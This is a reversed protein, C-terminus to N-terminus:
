SIIKLYKRAHQMDYTIIGDKMDFSAEVLSPHDAKISVSSGTVKTVNGCVGSWWTDEVKIGVRFTKAPLKKM